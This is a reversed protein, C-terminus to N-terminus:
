RRLWLCGLSITSCRNSFHMAQWIVAPFIALVCEYFKQLLSPREKVTEIFKNIAMIIRIANFLATGIGYPGLAVLGNCLKQMTDMAGSLCQMACVYLYYAATVWSTLLYVAASCSVTPTGSM